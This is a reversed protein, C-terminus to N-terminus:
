TPDGITWQQTPIKGAAPHLCSHARPRSPFGFMPWREEGISHDPDPFTYALPDGLVSAAEDFTVRHKKLNLAAKVSDIEFEM